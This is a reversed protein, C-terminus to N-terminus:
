FIVILLFLFQNKPKGSFMMQSVKLDDFDSQTSKLDKTDLNKVTHNVDFKDRLHKLFPIPNDFQPMLARSLTMGINPVEIKQEENKM